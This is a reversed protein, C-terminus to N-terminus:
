KFKLAHYVDPRNMTNQIEMRDNFLYFIFADAINVRHIANIMCYSYGKGFASNVSVFASGGAHANFEM